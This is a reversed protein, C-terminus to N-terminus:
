FYLLEEIIPRRLRLKEFNISTIDFPEVSDTLSIRLFNHLCCAAMIMKDGVEPTAEIPLVYHTKCTDSSGHTMANWYPTANCFHFNDLSLRVEITPSCIESSQKQLNVIPPTKM